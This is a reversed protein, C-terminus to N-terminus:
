IRFIFKVYFRELSPLVKRRRRDGDQYSQWVVKLSSNQESKRRLCKSHFNRWFGVKTKLPTAERERKIIKFSRSIASNNDFVGIERSKQINFTFLTGRQNSIKPCETFAFCGHLIKWFPKYNWPSIIKSLYWIKM